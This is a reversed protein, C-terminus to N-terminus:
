IRQPRKDRLTERSCWDLPLWDTFFPQHYTTPQSPSDSVLVDSARNARAAVRTGITTEHRRDNRARGRHDMRIRDDPNAVARPADDLAVTDVGLEHAPREAYAERHRRDPSGSWSDLLAVQASAVAVQLTLCLTCTTKV